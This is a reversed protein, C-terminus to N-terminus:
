LTKDSGILQKTFILPGVTLYSRSRAYSNSEVYGRTQIELEIISLGSINVNTDDAILTWERTQGTGYGVATGYGVRKINMNDGTIKIYFNAGGGTASAGGSGSSQANYTLLTQEGIKVYGDGYAARDYTAGMLIGTGSYNSVAFSFNNGFTRLDIKYKVNVSTTGPSSGSLVSECSVTGNLYKAVSKSTKSGGNAVTWKTSDLSGTQWLNDIERYEQQKLKM